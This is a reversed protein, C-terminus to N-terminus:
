HECFFFTLTARVRVGFKVNKKQSGRLRAECIVGEKHNRGSNPIM